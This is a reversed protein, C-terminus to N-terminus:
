FPISPRCGWLVSLMGATSNSCSCPCLTLKAPVRPNDFYWGGNPSGACAALNAVRLYEQQGGKMPRYLFTVLEPDVMWEASPAAVEVECALPSGGLSLLSTFLQESFANADATEDLILPPLNTNGARAYSELHASGTLPLAPSGIGVILTRIPIPATAADAVLESVTLPDNSTCQTSFGDSFLVVVKERVPDKQKEAMAYKYVGTLAPVLPAFGSPEMARMATVIQSGNENLMALPITPKTYDEAACNGAEGYEGTKGFFTISAAHWKADSSTTLAQMVSILFDWRRLEGDGAPTATSSGLAYSNSISRDMVIVLDIPIREDEISIGNCPTFRNEAEDTSAPIGPCPSVASVVSTTTATAGGAAAVAKGAASFTLTVSTAGGKSTASAGVSTGLAAGGSGDEAVVRGGCAGVFFGLM